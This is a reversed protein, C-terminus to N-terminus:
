CVSSSMAERLTQWETEMETEASESNLPKGSDQHLGPQLAARAEQLSVYDGNSSRKERDDTTPQGLLIDQAVSVFVRFEAYEVIIRGKILPNVNELLCWM